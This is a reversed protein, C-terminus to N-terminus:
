KQATCLNGQSPLFNFPEIKLLLHILVTIAATDESKRKPHQKQSGGDGIWRLTNEGCRM